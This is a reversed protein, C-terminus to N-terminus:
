SLYILSTDNTRTGLLKSRLTSMPIRLKDSAEKGSNFLEETQM